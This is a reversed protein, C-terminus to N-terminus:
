TDAVSGDARYRIEVSGDYPKTGANWVVLLGGDATPEVFQPAAGCPRSLPWGPAVTADSQLAVIRNDVILYIGSGAALWGSGAPDALVNSLQGDGIVRPWGPTPRGNPLFAFLAQNGAASSSDAAAIAYVFGDSAVVPPDSAAQSVAPESGLVWYGTPLSVPWGPKANGTRDFALITASNGSEKPYGPGYSTGRTVYVTGDPGFAPPSAPGGFKMPWGPYFRGTADVAGMQTEVAPGSYRAGNSAAFSHKWVYM